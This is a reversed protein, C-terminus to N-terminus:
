YYIDSRRGNWTSKISFFRFFKNFVNLGAKLAWFHLLMLVLTAVSIDTFLTASPNGDSDDSDCKNQACWQVGDLLEHQVANVRHDFRLLFDLLLFFLRFIRRRPLSSLNLKHQFMEHLHWMTPGLMSNHWREIWQLVPKESRDLKWPSLQLSHATNRVRWARPSQTHAGCSIKYARDNNSYRM